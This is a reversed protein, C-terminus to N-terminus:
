ISALDLGANIISIRSSHSEVLYQQYVVAKKNSIVM